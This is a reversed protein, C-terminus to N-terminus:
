GCLGAANPPSATEYRHRASRRWEPQLIGNSKLIPASTDTPIQILEAAAVTVAAMAALTSYQWFRRSRKGREAGDSPPSLAPTLHPQYIRALLIGLRARASFRMSDNM